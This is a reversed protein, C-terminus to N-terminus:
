RPNRRSGLIKAATAVANASPSGSVDEPDLSSEPLRSRNWDNSASNAWAAPNGAASKNADAESALRATMQARASRWSTTSWSAKACADRISPITCLPALRRLNACLSGASRRACNRKAPPRTRTTTVSDTNEMSPSMAGNASRCWTHLSSPASSNTSSAWETPRKPSWRVPQLSIRGLSEVNIAVVCPNPLPRADAPPSRQVCGDTIEAITFVDRANMKVVAGDGTAMKAARSAQFILWVSWLRDLCKNESHLAKSSPSQERPQGKGDRLVAVGIKGNIHPPRSADTCIEDFNTSCPM